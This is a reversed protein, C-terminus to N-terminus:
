EEAYKSASVRTFNEGQRGAVNASLTPAKFFASDLAQTKPGRAVKTQEAPPIYNLANSPVRTTPALKKQLDLYKQIEHTEQNYEKEDIEPPPHCFLLKGNVYDKLIYRAARSEDPNGQSSKTFGRAIAYAKL